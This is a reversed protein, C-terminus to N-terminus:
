TPFYSACMDKMTEEVLEGFIVCEMERGIEDTEGQMMGSWPTRWLDRPVTDDFSHCEDQPPNLYTHIMRWVYDLLKKGQPVVPPGVLGRISGSRTIPPRVVASLAENLLDFLLKHDVVNKGGYAKDTGDGEQGDQGNRKYASEVEEFVKSQIPCTLMSPGDYIGAAVLVDRIYVRAEGESDVLNPKPSDEKIVVEHSM